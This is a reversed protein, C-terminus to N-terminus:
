NLGTTESMPSAIVLQVTFRLRHVVLQSKEQLSGLIVELSGWSNSFSPSFGASPSPSLFM